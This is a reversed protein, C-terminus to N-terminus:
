CFEDVFLSYTDINKDKLFIDINKKLNFKNNTLLNILENGCGNAITNYLGYALIETLINEYLKGANDHLEQFIISTNLGNLEININPIHEMLEKYITQYINFVGEGGNKENQKIWEVFAVSNHITHDFIANIGRIKLSICFNIKKMFIFHKVMNIKNEKGFCLKELIKENYILYEMLQPFLHKLEINDYFMTNTIQHLVNGFEKFLSIIDNISLCSKNMDEFSALIVSHQTKELFDLHVMKKTPTYMNTISIFMPVNNNKNERAILDFYVYGLINNNYLLKYTMVSPDWLKYKLTDIKKIEINFIKKLIYELLNIAINPTFKTHNKMKEYYFIIDPQDITKKDINDNKMENAIISLETLCKNNINNMLNIILKKIDSSNEANDKQKYEFYTNYKKYELAISHRHVLIKSLLNLLEINNKFYQKEITNRLDPNKIKKQLYYYNNRNLLIPKTLNFPVETMNKDFNIFAKKIDNTIEISSINTKNLDYIKTQLLNIKNTLDIIKPNNHNQCIEILNKVIIINKNDITKKDIPITRKINKLIKLLESNSYFEKLYNEIIIDSEALYKNDNITRLVGIISYYYKIYYIHDTILQIKEIYSLDSNIFLEKIIEKANQIINLIEDRIQINSLNYIIKEKNM